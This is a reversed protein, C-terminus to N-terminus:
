HWGEQFQYVKNLLDRRIFCRASVSDRRFNVFTTPLLVELFPIVEEHINPQYATHWLVERHRLEIDKKSCLFRCEKLYDDNSM